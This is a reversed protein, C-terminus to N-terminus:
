GLGQRIRAIRQAKEPGAARALDRVEQLFRGWRTETCPGDFTAHGHLAVDLEHALEARAAQTESQRHPQSWGPM